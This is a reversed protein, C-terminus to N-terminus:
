SLLTQRRGSDRGFGKIRVRKVATMESGMGFRDLYSGDDNGNEKEKSEM